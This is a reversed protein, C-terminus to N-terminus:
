KPNFSIMLHQNYCPLMTNVQLFLDLIDRNNTFKLKPPKIGEEEYSKMETMFVHQNFYNQIQENAVNICLQEFSNVPFNEFGAMDLISITGMPHRRFRLIRILMRNVTNKATLMRLM